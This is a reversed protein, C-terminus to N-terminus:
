YSFERNGSVGDESCFYGKGYNVRVESGARILKTNTLKPFATNTLDFRSNPRKSTHNVRAALSMVKAADIYRGRTTAIAYVPNGDPYRHNLQDETLVQGFYWLKLEGPAIDQTAFLGIGGHSDPLTTVVDSVAEAEAQALSKLQRLTLKRKGKRRPM